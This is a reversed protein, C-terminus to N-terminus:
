GGFPRRCAVDMRGPCTTVPGQLEVSLLARFLLFSVELFDGAWDGGLLIENEEGGLLWTTGGGHLCM